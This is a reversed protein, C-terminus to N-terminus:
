FEEPGEATWHEYFEVGRWVNKLLARHTTEASVWEDIRSLGYARWDTFFANAEAPDLRNELMAKNKLRVWRVSLRAKGVRWMRLADGQVAAEAKDMISDLLDLMEPSYLPTDTQDNFGAHINDKDAKDCLANIYERVYKGAAGYYYDTFEEIHKQVDCDANWLLKSIVYARLENLDVGGKAAGCAQEFVGKVHNKVFAKMNPQLVRWNPYPAPYHAFCTTYDWIYLRDHYAGWNRLDSIFSSRTGDPLVVSRDQTCTEFSHAFCCEISCLRVCVNHRPKTKTPVPRTYNYALTDFIVDPFEPELAEAIANVFRLLTGAPSGEELDIARCADCECGYPHDNQSISIIRIGPNERLAKRAGEIAIELVAPNSLCLQTRGGDLTCRKGGFMAFYEPHSEGWVTTPVLNEFTHVFWLYSLHGGFKEKIPTGNGNLRSKVAFRPNNRYMAHYNHERYEFVPVQRTHIDPADPDTICPVKECEPTFFRCGLAELLEYVGYIVGRKGGMVAIGNEFTEVRFGDDGLNEDAEMFQEAARGIAIQAGEYPANEIEFAASTMLSLYYRLEEAAYKEQETCDAPIVIAALAKKDLALKM